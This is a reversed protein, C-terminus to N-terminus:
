HPLSNNINDILENKTMDWFYFLNQYICLMLLPADYHKM